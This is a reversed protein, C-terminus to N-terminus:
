PTVAMASLVRGALDGDGDVVVRDARLLAEPERRGAALLAFAETDTRVATTATTEARTRPEVPRARADDGVALVADFPVEGSVQWAVTTGPPPAVRKGLVYPLATAFTRVSVEAASSDLGGPRGVARRVDQEHVWLDVVRNRLLTEWDWLLGYPLSPVLTKPDDPPQAALAAARREVAGALEALLDEPTAARRADVGPQTLDPTVASRHEGDAAGGTRGEAGAPDVGGFRSEVDALHGVVDHVSWRPLDTRLEWDSADLERCLVLVREATERWAHIYTALPDM